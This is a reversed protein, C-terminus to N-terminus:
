ETFQSHVRQDSTYHRASADVDPQFCDDTEAIVVSGAHNDVYLRYEPFYPNLLIVEDGPDLISKLVM